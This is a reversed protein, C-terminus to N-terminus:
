DKMSAALKLFAQPNATSNKIVEYLGVEAKKLGIKNALHLFKPAEEAKVFDALNENLFGVLSELQYKEAAYTLEWLAEPNTWVDVREPLKGTYIFNMLFQICDGSLDACKIVGSNKELMETQFMRGFVPSAKALIFRHVQCQKGDRSIIKTDSTASDCALSSLIACVRKRYHHNFTKVPNEPAEPAKRKRSTLVAFITMDM